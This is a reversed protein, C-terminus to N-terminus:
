ESKKDAPSSSTKATATETKSETSQAPKTDAKADKGEDSSRTGRGKYDTSYFGSGKFQVGVPYLLKHLQGECSPCTTLPPDSM